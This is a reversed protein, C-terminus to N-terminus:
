KGDKDTAINVGQAKLVELIAQPVVMTPDVPENSPQLKLTPDFKEM